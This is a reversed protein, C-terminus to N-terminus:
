MTLNLIMCTSNIEGCVGDHKYQFRAGSMHDDTTYEPVLAKVSHFLCGFALGVNDPQHNMSRLNSAMLDIQIKGGGLVWTNQISVSM